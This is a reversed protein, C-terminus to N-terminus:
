TWHVSDAVQQQQPQQQHLFRLGHFRSDLAHMPTSDKENSDDGTVATIDGKLRVLMGISWVGETASRSGRNPGRSCPAMGVKSEGLKTPVLICTDPHWTLRISVDRSQGRRRLYFINPNGIGMYKLDKLTLHNVNKFFARGHFVSFGAYGLKEARNKVATLDSADMNEADHEDALDFHPVGIWGSPEEQVTFDRHTSHSKDCPWLHLVGHGPANLCLSPDEAVKIPGMNGDPLHFRTPTIEGKSCEDVWPRSGKKLTKFYVCKSDDAVSLFSTGKSPKEPKCGVGENLCCYDLKSQTWKVQLCHKCDTYQWSCNYPKPTTALQPSTAHSVAVFLLFLVPVMCLKPTCSTM